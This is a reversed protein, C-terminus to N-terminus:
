QVPMIWVAYWTDPGCKKDRKLGALRQINDIANDMQSGWRGDVDVSYGRSNLKKQLTILGRSRTTGGDNYVDGPNLSNESKGSVSEIPGSVDGYYCLNGHTRLLPFDPADIIAMLLDKGTPLKVNGSPKTVQEGSRVYPKGDFSFSGNQILGMVEDGPCATSAEPSERHGRIYESDPFVDKQQALFGNVAKIMAASPKENEGVLLLFATADNNSESGGNAGSEMDAGRLQYSYGRQDFAVQYGIDFWGQDEIHQRRYGRLRNITQEVSEDALTVNGAAPHHLYVGNVTTEFVHVKEGVDQTDWEERLYTYTFGGDTKPKPSIVTDPELIPSPSPAPKQLGGSLGMAKKTSLGVKGDVTLGHKKQWAKIKAVTGTGIKGDVTAGVVKQVAAHDLYGEAKYQDKSPFYRFHWNEDNRQGEAWSWGFRLGNRKVWEQIAGPHLDIAVGTEHNSGIDPSAVRVSGKWRWATGNYWRDTSRTKYRRGTYTYHKKFMAIQEARTRLADYLQFNVGTEAVARAIMRSFSDRADVRLKEDRNRNSWSNPLDVMPLAM